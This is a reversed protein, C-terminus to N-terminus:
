RAGPIWANPSDDIVDFRIDAADFVQAITWLAHLADDQDDTEIWVMPRGFGDDLVTVRYLTTGDMGGSDYM